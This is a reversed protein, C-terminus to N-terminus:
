VFLADSKFFYIWTQYNRSLLNVCPMIANYDARDYIYVLQM